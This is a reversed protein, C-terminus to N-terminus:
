YNQLELKSPLLQQMPQPLSLTTSKPTQQTPQTSYTLMKLAETLRNTSSCLTDISENLMQVYDSSDKERLEEGFDSRLSKISALIKLRAGITSVGLQELHSETLLPLADVDIEQSIFKDVYKKMGINTLFTTIDKPLDRSADMSRKRPTNARKTKTRKQDEAALVNEVDLIYL